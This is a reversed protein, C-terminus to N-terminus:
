AVIESYQPEVCHATKGKSIWPHTVVRTFCVPNTPWTVFWQKATAYCHGGVKDKFSMFTACSDGCKSNACLSKFLGPCSVSGYMNNM